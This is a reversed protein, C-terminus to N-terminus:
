KRLEAIGFFQGVMRILEAQCTSCLRYPTKESWAFETCRAENKTMAPHGQKWWRFDDDEAWSHGRLLAFIQSGYGLTIRGHLPWGQEWSEDIMSNCRGCQRSLRAIEKQREAFTM